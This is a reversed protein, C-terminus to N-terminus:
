FSTKCLLFFEELFFGRKNLFFNCFSEKLTINWQMVLLRVQLDECPDYYVTRPIKKIKNKVTLKKWFDRESHPLTTATQLDDGATSHSVHKPLLMGVRKRSAAAGHEGPLRQVRRMLQIPFFFWCALVLESVFRIEWYKDFIVPCNLNLLYMDVHWGPFLISGM